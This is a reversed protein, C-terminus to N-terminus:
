SRAFGGVRESLLDLIGQPGCGIDITRDGPQINLQDLFRRSDPALEQPQRRFREEENARHGLLYEDRRPKQNSM